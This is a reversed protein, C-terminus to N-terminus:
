RGSPGAASDPRAREPREAAGTPELAEGPAFRDARAALAELLMPAQGEYAAIERVRLLGAAADFCRGLSTTPPCRTGRALMSAVAAAAPQAAFRAEIEAARGIRALAAAAMRWPERAAADGGPLALPALHGLREFNAGDVRLLEGGWAAGDSGLGIGDLALGLLAGREGHEAAVAAIHAHHHQM